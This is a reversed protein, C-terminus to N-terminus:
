VGSLGRMAAGPSTKALMALAYINLEARDFLVGRHM